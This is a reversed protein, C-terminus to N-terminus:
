ILKLWEIEKEITTENGHGPLVQVLAPFQALRALSMNMKEANGGPLDVRGYTGAFLTDGSFLIGEKKAYLCISGESHGPTHMVVLEERGFRVKDGEKLAVNITAKEQKTKIFKEAMTDKEYYTIDAGHMLIPANTARKLAVNEFTHDFHYHTNVIFLITLGNDKAFQVTETSAQAPDIVIAEFTDEDWVVYTNNNLPAGAIKKFKM